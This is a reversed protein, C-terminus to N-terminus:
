FPLESSSSVHCVQRCILARLSLRFCLLSLSIFAPVLRRSSTVSALEQCSVPLKLDAVTATVDHVSAFELFCLEGVGNGM